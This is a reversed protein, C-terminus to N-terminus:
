SVQPRKGLKGENQSVQSLWSTDVKICRSMIQAQKQITAPSEHDRPSMEPKAGDKQTDNGKTELCSLSPIELLMELQNRM